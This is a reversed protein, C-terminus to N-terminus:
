CFIKFVGTGFIGKPIERKAFIGTSQGAERSHLWSRWLLLTQRRRTVTALREQIGPIHRTYRYM